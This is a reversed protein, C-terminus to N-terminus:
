EKPYFVADRREIRKKIREWFPFFGKDALQYLESDWKSRYSYIKIGSQETQKAVRSILDQNPGVPTELFVVGDKRSAVVRELIATESDQVSVPLAIRSSLDNCARKIFELVLDSQGLNTDGSAVIVERVSPMLDTYLEPSLEESTTVLLFNGEKPPASRAPNSQLLDDSFGQQPLDNAIAIASDALDNDRPCWRGDSYKAINDAKALYYKGKTQLGAVWRWSLTNSAPDGDLLHRYMFMAGLQWPIKLTFIWVSAFWMRTHNHLYGTDILERVWENFFSLRTEGLCAARYLDGWSSSDTEKRYAEETAICSSWVSPNRALWGKWYTRWVVEQIFKEAVQFSHNSLVARVVEEETILRRRIYPSLRSVDHHGPRDFNRREVYRPIREIFNELSRLGSARTPSLMPRSQIVSQVTSNPIMDEEAIRIIEAPNWARQFKARFFDACLSPALRANM